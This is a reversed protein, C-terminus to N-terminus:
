NLTCISVCIVDSVLVVEAREGSVLVFRRLVIQIKIGTFRTFQTGTIVDCVLVVQPREALPGRFGLRLAEASYSVLIGM